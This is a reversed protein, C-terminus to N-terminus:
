RLQSVSEPGSDPKPLKMTNLMNLGLRSEVVGGSYTKTGDASTSSSEGANWQTFFDSLDYGSVHSACVMLLDEGSLKTDSASCYNIGNDGQVDGRAKRHMLKFMNWGEDQNYITPKSAAETYWDDIKFHTEAWVKLQGFMVLRMGADGHAWAHGSNSSLWQPAKQIDFKIRDMEPNDNRGELEQMYLALINNTVETSGAVSFPAAALNHGVEHWLLWDDVANTPITTSQANFSSNMVPYGSHAAGISIQVDNVFRHRFDKLGDYTFRRHMGNETVEDRGYFDSAANAFRNMEQSFKALDATRVNNIATTYIFTGTDVEAIPATAEAPSHIWAGDKWWAAREVGSLTFTVQTNGGAAVEHPKITILGGYPVKFSTSSGDHAFSMQMRPPRNLRTEHQPKGTLDDAMMVTITAKVGGDVTVEQLQPAWFGTSQNNGASFTVARGSTEILASGATGSGSTRGPYKTTDVVIDHDWFSRGLMIRTLPKEMYNLPYSPNMQGALEGESHIMGHEILKSALEDSCTLGGGHANNTYCNLMDVLTKFGLEDQVLPNYAYQNDNWLWVSLNDYTQNLEVTSLRTGQKGKTRYYLEHEMLATVNSGLNAAKVMSTVVDPSMEYRDFNARHYNGFVPVGDGKRTEICNFEYEYSHTCVPTGPFAEQLEKIKELKEAESKVFHHAYKNDVIPVGNKDLVPNGNADLRPWDYKPVELDPMDVPPAWQVVGKGNEGEVVTFPPKGNVDPFRELVVLDYQSSVHLNPYMTQCYYSSGCFAQNTPTVNSGGLSVGVADALRGIPEPNANGDIADMFLVNGGENIYRILATIDDQSLNPNETDAIFRVTMGDGLTRTQYAQLILIPTDKASLGAFGDKALPTVTGLGYDPSIFFDYPQGSGLHRRAATATEINTAVNVPLGDAGPAFWAFLNDFFRKMSGHDDQPDNVMDIATTCSKNASDIRLQNDAWYNEPCSLISPYMSNGMFVVKGKGLLGATVFPFGYTANDKSVTPIETMEFGPFAALYPKGERTWAQKEGFPLERNIDTRPMMVPFAENSLNLARMGRTYGTAGYFSSNDNFVHFSTVGKFIANLSNTVYAGDNLNFVNSASRLLRMPKRLEADIIATLGHSFQAEFEDPLLFETGELKGGNPLNLNILENIVNPYLAFTNKVKDSIVLTNGNDTGYRNLLAQINAKAVPNDTVDTLKFDIKNGTVSGFEFTDIGFSIKDGWLYEFEGSENTVGVSNASFFSIGSLPMGNADTLVSTTLVKAEASPKYALSAEAASSVFGSNLDNSGGSVAPVINNDVHSSPAKGIEDTAKAEQAKLFDDVEKQKELQSYVAAIDLEYFEDLCIVQTDDCTSISSLVKTANEGIKGGKQEKIDFSTPVIEDKFEEDYNPFPATFEGLTTGGFDCTFPTGQKIMFKGNQLSEGNCSVDGSIVKGSSLLSGEYTQIPFVPLMPQQVTVRVTAEQSLYGDSVIVFFHVTGVHEETPKLTLMGKNDIVVWSPNGSLTFTLPDDDADTATVQQEVTEGAKLVVDPMPTIVPAHNNDPMTSDSVTVLMSTNASMSGDSVSVTFRHTGTNNAQPFLKLTGNQDISAWNQDGELVYTLEDGDKDSASVQVKHSQGTVLHVNSLPSIVPAHNVADPDVPTMSISVKVVVNAKSVVKGDSVTIAFTYTGSDEASPSLTLMGSQNIKAWTPNGDLAYQLVDGDKDAAQIQIEKTEGVLLKVESISSISPAHNNSEPIVPIDPGSTHNSDDQCGALALTVLTSLILKKHM